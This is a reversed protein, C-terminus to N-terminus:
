YRIFNLVKSDQGLILTKSDKKLISYTTEMGDWPIHPKTYSNNYAKDIEIHMTNESPFDTYGYFIVSHDRGIEDRTLVTCSFQQKHQFSYFVTDVTQPNGEAEQITKLQWMGTLNPSSSDESCSVIFFLFLSVLLGLKKM